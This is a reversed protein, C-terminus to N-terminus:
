SNSKLTPTYTEPSLLTRAVSATSVLAVAVAAWAMVGGRNSLHKAILTLYRLSLSFFNGGFIQDRGVGASVGLNLASMMACLAAVAIGAASRNLPPPFLLLARILVMSVFGLLGLVFHVNTGIWPLEFDRTLLDIVSAAPQIAIEALQNSSVTAYMIAVLENTMSVVSLVSYVCCLKKRWPTNDPLPKTLFGLPVLGSALMAAPSIMNGFLVRAQESYDSVGFRLATPPKPLSLGGNRDSRRPSPSPSSHKNSYNNGGSARAKTIPPHLTPPLHSDNNDGNTRLLSAPASRYVNAFAACPRLVLLCLLFPRRTISKMTADSSHARVSAGEERIKASGHEDVRRIKSSQTYHHWRDKRSLIRGERM